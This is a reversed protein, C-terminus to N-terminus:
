TSNKKHENRYAKIQEPTYGHIRKLHKSISITNYIKDACHPCPYIRETRKRLTEKSNLNGDVSGYKKLNTERKKENRSTWDKSAMIEAHKARVKPDHMMNTVGYKKKLTEKLVEPNKWPNDTKYKELIARKRAEKVANEDLTHHVGYRRRNTNYVRQKIVKSGSGRGGYKSRLIDNVKIQVSEECFPFSFGSDELWAKSKMHHDTKWRSQCYKSYASKEFFSRKGGPMKNMCLLDNKWLDGLHESEGIYAEEATEYFDLIVREVQANEEAIQRPWSGSGIYSDELNETSHKGIYYEGTDPRLTLYVFHYM